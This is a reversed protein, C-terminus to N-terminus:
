PSLPRKPVIAWSKVDEEIRYEGPHTVVIKDYKKQTLAGAVESKLFGSNQNDELKTYSVKYGSENFEKAFHRM